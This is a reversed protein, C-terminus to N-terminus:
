MGSKRYRRQILERQHQIYDIAEEVSRVIHAKGKWDSFFQDQLSTKRNKGAPNKVELLFNQGSTGVLLDVPEQIQWVTCGIAELAKVIERENADTKRAYRLKTM